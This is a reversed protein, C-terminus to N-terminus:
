ADPSSPGESKAATGEDQESEGMGFLDFQNPDVPKKRTKATRGRRFYLDDAHDSSAEGSTKTPKPPPLSEELTVPKWYNVAVVPCGRENEYVQVAGHAAATLIASALEDAREPGPRLWETEFKVPGKAIRRAAAETRELGLPETLAKIADDAIPYALTM